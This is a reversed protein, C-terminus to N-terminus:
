LRSGMRMQSVYSNTRSVIDSYIRRCQRCNYYSVPCEVSYVQVIRTGSLDGYSLSRERFFTEWLEVQKCCPIDPQFAMAFLNEVEPEYRGLPFAWFVSGTFWASFLVCPTFEM